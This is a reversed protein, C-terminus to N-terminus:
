VVFRKRIQLVCIALLQIISNQTVRSLFLTTLQDRDDYALDCMKINSMFQQMTKRYYNFFGAHMSIFTHFYVYRILCFYWASSFIRTM